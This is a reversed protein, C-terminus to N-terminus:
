QSLLPFRLAKEPDPRPGALFPDELVDPLVDGLWAHTLNGASNDGAAGAELDVANTNLGSRKQLTSWGALSIAIFTSQLKKQSWHNGNGTQLDDNHHAGLQAVMIM